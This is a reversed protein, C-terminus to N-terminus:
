ETEAPEMQKAVQNAKARSSKVVPAKKLAPSDARSSNVKTKRVVVPKATELSSVSETENKTKLSSSKDFKFQKSLKKALQKSGKEIQKLGKKSDLGLKGAVDKLETILTLKIDKRASKVLSKLKSKKM